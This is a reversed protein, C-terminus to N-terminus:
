LMVVAATGLGLPLMSPGECTIGALKLRRLAPLQQGAAFIQQWAGEAFSSNLLELCRLGTSARLAAFAPAPPLGHCLPQAHLGSIRFDTLATCQSLAALFAPLGGRIPGEDYMDPQLQLVQLGTLASLTSPHIAMSLLENKVLALRTLQTLNTPVAISNAGVVAACSSRSLTINHGSNIQLSKLSQLQQLPELSTAELAAANLYLEQLEALIPLHAVVSADV